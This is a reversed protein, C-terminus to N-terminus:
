KFNAFNLGSTVQSNEKKTGNKRKTNSFKHQRVVNETEETRAQAKIFKEFAKPGEKMVLLGLMLNQFEEPNQSYKKEMVLAEAYGMNVRKGRVNVPVEHNLIAQSLFSGQERSLSNGYLEGKQLQSYLKAEVHKDLEAIQKQVAAAEQEKSKSISSVYDELKPKLYTARDTLKEGEILSAIEKNVEEADWKMVKQYYERVVQEPSNTPDLNTVFESEFISKMFEKIDSDDANPNNLNYQLLRTTTPSIRNAIDTQTQTVANEWAEKLKLDTNYTITKLLAAEDFADTDIGEPVHSFIGKEFLFNAVEPIYDAVMSEPLEPTVEAPTETLTEQEEVEEEQEEVIEVAPIGMGELQEDTIEIVPEDQIEVPNNFQLGDTM